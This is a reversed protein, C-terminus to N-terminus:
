KNAKKLRGMYRRLEEDARMVQWVNTGEVVWSYRGGVDRKLIIKPFVPTKEKEQKQLLQAGIAPDRRFGAAQASAPCPALPVLLALLIVAGPIIKKIDPLLFNM